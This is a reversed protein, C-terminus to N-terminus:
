EKSNDSDDSGSNNSVIKAHRAKILVLLDSEGADDSERGHGLKRLNDVFSDDCERLEKLIHMKLIDKGKKPPLLIPISTKNKKNNKKQNEIIAFLEAEEEHEIKSLENWLYRFREDSRATIDNIIEDLGGEGKKKAAKFEKRISEIDRNVTRVSIELNKAIISIQWRRVFFLRKVQARRKELEEPVARRRYKSDDDKSKGANPPM